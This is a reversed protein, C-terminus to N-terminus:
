VFPFFFDYSLKADIKPTAKFGPLAEASVLVFTVSTTILVANSGRSFLALNSANTNIVEEVSVIQAQPNLISGYKTWKVILQLSLPINCSQTDMLKINRIIPVWSMLNQLQPIGFSAVYQPTNQGRLVGLLVESVLSCNAAEELRLACGSLMDIGFLIPSHQHSGKFCDQLEADYLLTLAGGPDASHIVENGIKTGAVLPRGVVYGPNGSYQFMVGDVSEQLFYISFEQEMPLTEGSIVGLVLSVTVNMINGAMTYQVVFFVQRVVNACVDPSLSTPDLNQQTLELPTQIGELSQQVISVVEVDVLTADKNRGSLLQLGTYTRINLAPMTTCDRNLDISRTCRSTQDKLFAAPSKDLCHATISHSPLYLFGREGNEEQTQMVDGYFYGSSETSSDTSSTGSDRELGFILKAFRSFLADFNEFTPVAPLAHSLGEMYKNSEICLVDYNVEKQVLAQLDSFGDVTIGLSYYAVDQSCLKQDGIVKHVSCATFLAREETCDSDCCCNMDCANKQQDCSCIRDVHTESSLLDGSFPLPQPNSVSSKSLSSLTSALPTSDTSFDNAKGNNDQLPVLTIDMEPHVFATSNEIETFNLYNTFNTLM